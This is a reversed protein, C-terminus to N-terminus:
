EAETDEHGLDATPIADIPILAPWLIPGKEIIGVCNTRIKAFHKKFELGCGRSLRFDVLIKQDVQILTCRFCLIAGRRDQTEITFQLLFRFNNSCILSIYYLLKFIRATESNCIVKPFCTFIQIKM